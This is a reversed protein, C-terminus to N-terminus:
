DPYFHHNDSAKEKLYAYVVMVFGLLLYFPEVEGVCAKLIAGLLFFMDLILFGTIGFATYKANGIAKYKAWIKKTIDIM